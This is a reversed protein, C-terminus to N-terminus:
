KVFTTDNKYTHTLSAILAEALSVDMPLAPYGVDTAKDYILNADIAHKENLKYGGQLSVNYKEFQSYLVEENNGADYNDSKRYIGDANLYFKNGSYELDLGATRYNGNTEYGLDASSKFGFDYFKSQPLQLDIGGGVCHGNEAGEQGSGINVKELNSVDVYSTIPDMKDTCAGCIQMGDSTFNLRESTMKNM